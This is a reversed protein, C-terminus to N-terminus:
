CFGHCTARDGANVAYGLIETQGFDCGECTYLAEGTLACGAEIPVGAGERPTPYAYGIVEGDCDLLEVTAEPDRNDNPGYIFSDCPMEITAEYYYGCTKETTFWRPVGLQNRQKREVKHEFCRELGTDIWLAEVDDVWRVRGYQNQQKKEIMGTEPNYRRDGTDHWEQGTSPVWRLDGCDNVQQKEDDTQSGFVPRYEGTDAWRLDGIEQWEQNGCNDIMLSEHKDTAINCRRLVQERWSEDDHECCQIPCGQQEPTLDKVETHTKVKVISNGIGPGDYVARIVLGQPNQLVIIPNEYTIRVKTKHGTWNDECQECYLDTSNIIEPMQAPSIFCCNAKPLSGEKLFFSEFTIVDEPELGVAQITVQDEIVFNVLSYKTNLVINNRNFLEKVESNSRM